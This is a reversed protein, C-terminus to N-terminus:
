QAKGQSNTALRANVPRGNVSHHACSEGPLEEPVLDIGGRTFPHCRLLRKLALPTGRRAGHREIAERAYNSCSPYFKCAGGFFPSLFVIYMRVM